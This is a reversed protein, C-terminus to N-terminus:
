LRWLTGVAKEYEAYADSAQNFDLGQSLRRLERSRHTAEEVQAEM